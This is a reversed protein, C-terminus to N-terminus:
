RPLKYDMPSSLSRQLPKAPPNIPSLKSPILRYTTTGSKRKYHPNETYCTLPSIRKPSRLKYQERAKAKKREKKKKSLIGLNSWTYTYLISLESGQVFLPFPYLDSVKTRCLVPLERKMNGHFPDTHQINIPGTVLALTQGYSATAPWVFLTQYM